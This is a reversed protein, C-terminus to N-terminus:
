RKSAQNTQKLVCYRLADRLNRHSLIGDFAVDLHVLTQAINPNIGSLVCEAGLLSVAKAMRMFHDATQTDMIEIGTIDIIAYRAKHQVVANLLADTMETSRASDLAGVVPLCVIGDWVQMVPTSLERIAERQKEITSLKDELEKQYRQSRDHAEELVSLMENMGSVLAGFPHDDPHETTVRVSYDGAAVDSLAMLVDALNGYFELEPETMDTKQESM